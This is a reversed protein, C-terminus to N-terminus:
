CLYQQIVKKYSRGSILEGGDKMTLQYENNNLYIAKRVYRKNVIISRHIRLFDKPNLQDSLANMTSRYLHTKDSTKLNVYNGNAEIYLVGDLEVEHEWGRDAIVIKSIYDESPREFDRIMKMLKENFAANKQVEFHKLVKQVSEKFRDEDIPKLLYDLAHINFAEIAYKDYATAFVIYPQNKPSIKKVVEFGDFDPMQIDLFVLDPEELEILKVAQSGNKAEGIVNIEEFTKLLKHIRERALYEDDVIIARIM